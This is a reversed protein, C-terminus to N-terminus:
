AAGGLIEDVTIAVSPVLSPRLDEGRHAMRVLGYEGGSPQIHVIVRDGQIDAIWVEPVGQRAYIPIKVQRDTRLSSDSVEIVLLAERVTPHGSAYYDARFPVLMLDPEPESWPPLRLPGGPTILVEVGVRPALLRNARNVVSAHRSGITAMEVIKGDLLEVRSDADLIGVEGMREYEDVTFRKTALVPDATM